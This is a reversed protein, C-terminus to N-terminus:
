RNTVSSAGSRLQDLAQRDLYRGDLVVAAVRRTNRIDQLPNAELLVLDALKGVAITGLSDKLNLYAATNRTASQLAELPTMGIKEVMLALEEHLSSGPFVLVAGLDTGAMMSVGARRMLHLDRMGREQLTQWDMPTEYQKTAMQFRWFDVLGDSVQQRRPERAGRADEIVALVVTDATLRWNMEAVITPVIRTGNRALQQFLQMRAADPLTDLVFVTPETHELSGLGLGSAKELGIGSPAHGALPLGHRKAQAAIARLVEPSAVTRIKIFDVGADALSDVAARAEEPTGVGVRPSVEWLPFEVPTPLGQVAQLWRASELIPGPTRIRPAVLAGTSTATQWARIEPLRSGMDRVGTVGHAVLLPLASEGAVSLHVHADWLGPILYRGGAEVVQASSPIHLQASPGTRTIRNGAILVTQNPLLAGTEVDVVTANVLALTPLEEGTRASGACATGLLLVFLLFLRHGM